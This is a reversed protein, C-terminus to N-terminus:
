GPMLFFRYLLLALLTAAAAVASSRFSRLFYLLIAVFTGVAAVLVGHIFPEFVPLARRGGLVFRLRDYEAVSRVLALLLLVVGIQAAREASVRM